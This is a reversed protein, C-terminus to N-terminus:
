SAFGEEDIQGYFGVPGKGLAGRLVAAHSVEDGMIRAAADLLKANHFQSIAKQYTRAAKMELFLALRLVDVETKLEFASLDYDKRPAMPFGGLQKIVATLAERHTEHSTKFLGGVGLVGKSLLGSGAALGYAFIATHELELATNLLGVDNSPRPKTKPSGLLPLGAFAAGGALTALFSRRNTM